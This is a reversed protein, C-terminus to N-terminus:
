SQPPGSILSQVTSLLRPEWRAFRNQVGDPNLWTDHPHPGLWVQGATTTSLDIVSLERWSSHTASTIQGLPIVLSRQDELPRRLKEKEEDPLRAFASATLALPASHSANAGTRPEDAAKARAAVFALYRPYVLITGLPLDGAGGDVEGAASAALGFGTARHLPRPPRESGWLYQAFEDRSGNGRVDM